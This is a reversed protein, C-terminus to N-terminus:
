RRGKRRKSSKSSSGSQARAKTATGAPPAAYTVAPIFAPPPPAAPLEQGPVALLGVNAAASPLPPMGVFARVAPRRLMLTQGM